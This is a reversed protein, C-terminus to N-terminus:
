GAPRGLIEIEGIALEERAPEGGHPEGAYTSIVELTVEHTEENGVQLRFPEPSDPIEDEIVEGGGTVLSLEHIRYSNHFAEDDPLGAIVVALVSVPEAFSFTLAAGEGHRSADRWATTPDGDAVNEAGFEPSLESSASVRVPELPVPGVPDGAFPTNPESMTSTAVEAQLTTSPSAEERGLALVVLVIFFVVGVFFGVTLISMGIRPSRIQRPPAREPLSGLRAACSECFRNSVPNLGWCVPCSIRASAPGDGDVPWGCTGCFSAAAKLTQGCNPCVTVGLDSDRGGSDGIGVSHLLKPAHRSSESRGNAPCCSTAHRCRDSEGRAM